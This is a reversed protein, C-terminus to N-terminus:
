GAGYAAEGGHKCGRYGFEPDLGKHTDIASSQFFHM